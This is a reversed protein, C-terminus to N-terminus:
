SGILLPQDGSDDILEQKEALTANTRGLQRQRTIEEMIHIALQETLKLRQPEPDNAFLLNVRSYTDATVDVITKTEDRVYRLPNCLGETFWRFWLAFIDARLVTDNRYLLEDPFANASITLLDGMRWISGPGHPTNKLYQNIRELSV